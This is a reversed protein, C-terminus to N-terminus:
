ARRPSRLRTSCRTPLPRAAPCTVISRAHVAGFTPQGAVHAATIGHVRVNGPHFEDCPDLLTEYEFVERGDRFGVIGVQCISSVRSCATEVDIIVFDPEAKSTTTPLCLRSCTWQMTWRGRRRVASKRARARPLRGGRDSRLAEGVVAFSTPRTM